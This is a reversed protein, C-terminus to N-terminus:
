KREFLRNELGDFLFNIFKGTGYGTAIGCATAPVVGVGFTSSTLLVTTGAGALFSGGIEAANGLLRFAARGWDGTTVGVSVSDCIAIGASIGMTVKGVAKATNLSKAAVPDAPFKWMAYIGGNPRSYTHFEDLAGSAIAVSGAISSSASLLENGATITDVVSFKNQSNSVNGKSGVTEGIQLKTPDGAYGSKERWDAGYLGYLTDDKEATFTGDGNDIWMGTPDTYKVPNNGAYHYTHLNITNYIGGMGPLNGIGQGAAPIYEGM